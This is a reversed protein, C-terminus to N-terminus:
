LSNFLILNSISNFKVILFSSMEFKVSLSYLFIFCLLAFCNNNNINICVSWDCVRHISNCYLSTTATSNLQTSNFQTSNLQIRNLHSTIHKATAQSSASKITCWLQEEYKGYISQYTVLDAALHTFSLSFKSLWAVLWNITLSCENSRFKILLNVFQIQNYQILDVIPNYQFM